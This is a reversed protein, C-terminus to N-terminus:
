WVQCNKFKGVIYCKSCNYHIICKGGKAFVGTTPWPRRKKTAKKGSQSVSCETPSEEQSTIPGDCLGRGSLMCCDFSVSM